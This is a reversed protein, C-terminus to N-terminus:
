LIIKYIGNNSLSLGSIEVISPNVIVSIEKYTNSAEKSDADGNVTIEYLTYDDKNFNETEDYSIEKVNEFGKLEDLIEQKEEDQLGKFMLNFSSSNEKFETEMIDLGQRVESSKPLYKSIDYNINVKSSLFISVVAFINFLILMLIRKEVIFNVIKKM